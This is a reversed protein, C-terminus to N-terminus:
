QINTCIYEKSLVIITETPNRSNHVTEPNACSVNDNEPPFVNFPEAYGFSVARTLAVRLLDGNASLVDDTIIISSTSVDTGTDTEGGSPSPVWVIVHYVRLLVESPM